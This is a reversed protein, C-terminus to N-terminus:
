KFLEQQGSAEGGAREMLDRAEQIFEGVDQFNRYVSAFRVYAIPDLKRLERAVWAGILKSPVERQGLQVLEDEINEALREIQEVSVPRKFCAREVGLIIKTRDFPMRTGDRKIVRIRSELDVREKTTYRKGCRLCERRRRIATGAETVRSDLVRDLNTQKCYPCQM